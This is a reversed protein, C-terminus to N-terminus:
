LYLENPQETLSPMLHRSPRRNGSPTTNRGPAKLPRRSHESLYTLPNPESTPGIERENSLKPRPGSSKGGLKRSITSPLALPNDALIARNPEAIGSLDVGTGCTLSVGFTLGMPSTLEEELVPKLKARAIMKPDVWEHWRRPLKNAKTIGEDRIRMEGRPTPRPGKPKVTKLLTRRVFHELEVAAREEIGRRSQETSKFTRSRQCERIM